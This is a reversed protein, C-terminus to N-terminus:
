LNELFIDYFKDYFREFVTMFIMIHCEFIMIQKNGM